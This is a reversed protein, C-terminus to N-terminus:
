LFEELTSRSSVFDIAVDIGVGKTLELMAETANGAAADVVEDAGAERCADFKSSDVDVAIVRAHAFRALMLMHIGLGGGASVHETVDGHCAVCTLEDGLREQWAPDELAAHPNAGISEFKDRHCATCNRVSGM